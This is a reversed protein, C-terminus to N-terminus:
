IPLMDSPKFMSSIKMKRSSPDKPGAGFKRQHAQTPRLDVLHFLFVSSALPHRLDCAIRVRKQRGYLDAHRQGAKQGCREAFGRYRRIDYRDDFTPAHLFRPRERVVMTSVSIMEYQELDTMESSTGFRMAMCRLSPDCPGHHRGDMHECLDALRDNASRCSYLRCRAIARSRGSHSRRGLNRHPAARARRRWCLLSSRVMRSSTNSAESVITASTM